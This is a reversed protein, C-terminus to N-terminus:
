KEIKLRLVAGREFGFQTRQAAQKVTGSVIGTKGVVVSMPGVIGPSDGKETFSGHVVVQGAGVIRCGELVGNPGIVLRAGDKLAISCQELRSEVEVVSDEDFELAAHRLVDGKGFFRKPQGSSSVAASIPSFAASRMREVFERAVSGEIRLEDSHTSFDVWDAVIGGLQDPLLDAGALKTGTMRAGDLVVGRVSTGRLDAFSLDARLFTSEELLAAELIARCLGASEAYLNRARAGGLNADSLDAAELNARDLCANRLDTRVLKAGGLYARSLEAGDMEAGLLRAGGLDAGDLQCSRLRAGNLSAGELSAGTLNAGSLDANQLNAGDLMAGELDAKQLNAGELNAGPLFADRLSASALNARRLSAGELHTGELDARRLNVGDLATGCLALNKLDARELSLGKRVKELIQERERSPSEPARAADPNSLFQELKEIRRGFPLKRLQEVFPVEGMEALAVEVRLASLRRDLRHKRRDEALEHSTWDAGAAHELAQHREKLEALLKSLRERPGAPGSETWASEREKRHEQIRHSIRESLWLSIGTAASLETKDAVCLADLSGSGAKRLREFTVFGVDPVQKLLSHLILEDRAAQALAAPSPDTAEPRTPTAPEPAKAQAKPGAGAASPRPAPSAVGRAPRSASAPRGATPRAPRTKAEGPRPSQFVSFFGFFGV